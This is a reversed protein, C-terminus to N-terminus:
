SCRGTGCDMKHVESMGCEACTRPPGDAPIWGTVEREVLELVGTGYAKRELNRLLSDAQRREIAGLKKIVRRSRKMRIGYEIM